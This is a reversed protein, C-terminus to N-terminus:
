SYFFKGDKKFIITLLLLLFSVLSLIKLFFRIDDKYSIITNNKKTDDTNLLILFNDGDIINNNNSKWNADYVFPLVPYYNPTTNTISFNANSIRTLQHTSHNFLNKNKLLCDLKSDSNVWVGSVLTRIKCSKLKKILIPLNEDRVSYNIVNRKFLFLNHKGTKIKKILNFNNNKLYNIEDEVILLFNIKFINLFFEDNILNYHSRIWGGMKNTEDGFQKMSTYKFYGNFPSLNFKTLDTFAFIGEDEYGKWMHPFLSPSLYIRQYDNKSLNLDELKNIFETNQYKDLIFNNKNTKIKDNINIYFFLLSYFILLVNLLLRFGYKIRKYNIFYILLSCYLVIDRVMWGASVSPVVSLLPLLSFVLFTFFLFCFKFNIDTQTKIFFLKITDKLLFRIPTKKLFNIFNFASILAVSLSFYILIPNGPLRYIGFSSLFNKHPYFIEIFNRLDYTGQYRKWGDFYSLERFIYFIHESLILIIFVLNIFFSLNIIKKLHDMSKITILFYIIFFIIFNSIHALNGNIIWFCFYLSFKYYSIRDKKEIIKVFYYFVAPFLCFSFFVGLWDDAMGYMVNPLSFILITALLYPNFETKFLKLLKHTYNLQLFLHFITFLAYYVKLDYLFLNLPHFLPGAGLPLKTGPGYFDYFFTFLGTLSEQYILASFLGVVYSELDNIGFIFVPTTFIILILINIYNKKILYKM